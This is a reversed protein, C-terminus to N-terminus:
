TSRGVVRPKRNLTSRGERALLCNICREIKTLLQQQKLAEVLWARFLVSVRETSTRGVPVCLDAVGLRLCEGALFNLHPTQINKAMTVNKM